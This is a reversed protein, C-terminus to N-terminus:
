QCVWCLRFGFGQWVWCRLAPSLPHKRHQGLIWSPPQSDDTIPLAIGYWHCCRDRLDGPERALLTRAHWPRPGRLSLRASASVRGVMNGEALTVADARWLYVSEHSLSQGIHVGTLAEHHAERRTRVCSEPVAHNAIGESDPVRVRQEKGTERRVANRKRRSQDSSRCFSALCGAKANARM